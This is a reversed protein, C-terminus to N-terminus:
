KGPDLMATARCEPSLDVGGFFTDALLSWAVLNEETQCKFPPRAPAGSLITEHEIFYRLALEAAYERVDRTRPDFAYFTGDPVITDHPAFPRLCDHDEGCRALIADFIPTLTKISWDGSSADNLHFLEHFLTEHMERADSHLPGRLNYALVGDLCYASPYAPVETQFFAIARPRARFSPSRGARLALTEIFDDFAALSDHLWELHHREEGVPLAPVLTVTAGRYGEVTAHTDVGVLTSRAYLSKALDLADPDTAFRLSLLCEVHERAPRGAPCEALCAAEGFDTCLLRRALGSEAMEAARQSPDSASGHCAEVGAVLTAGLVLSRLPRTARRTTIM